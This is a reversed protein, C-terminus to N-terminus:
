QGLFRYPACGPDLRNLNRRLCCQDHRQFHMKMSQARSEEWVLPIDIAGNFYLPNAGLWHSRSGKAKRVFKSFAWLVWEFLDARILHRM